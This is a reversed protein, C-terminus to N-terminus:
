REYVEISTIFPVLVSEISTKFNQYQDVINGLLGSFTQKSSDIPSPAQSVVVAALQNAPESKAVKPETNLSLFGRYFLFSTLILISCGFTLATAWRNRYAEEREM